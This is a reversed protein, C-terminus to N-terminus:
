DSVGLGDAETRRLAAPPRKLFVYSGVAPTQNRSERGAAALTSMGGGSPAGMAKSTTQKSAKLQKMTKRAQEKNRRLEEVTNGKKIALRSVFGQYREIDAVHM